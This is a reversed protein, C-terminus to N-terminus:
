FENKNKNWWAFRLKGENKMIESDLRKVTSKRILFITRFVFYLPLIKKLSCMIKQCTEYRKQVTSGGGGSDFIESAGEGM